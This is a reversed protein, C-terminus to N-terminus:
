NKKEFKLGWCKGLAEFVNSSAPQHHPGSRILLHGCLVWVASFHGLNRHKSSRLAPWCGISRQRCCPFGFRPCCTQFVNKLTPKLEIRKPPETWPAHRCLCASPSLLTGPQSELDASSLFDCFTWFSSRCGFYIQNLNNNFIIISIINTVANVRNIPVVFINNNAGLKKAYLAHIDKYFSAYASAKYILLVSWWSSWGTLKFLLHKKCPEVRVGSYRRVYNLDKLWCPTM